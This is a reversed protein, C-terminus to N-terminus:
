NLKISIRKPRVFHTNLDRNLNSKYYFKTSSTKLTNSDSNRESQLEPRLLHVGSSNMYKANNQLEKQVVRKWGKNWRIRVLIRCHIYSVATMCRHERKYDWLNVLWICIMKLMIKYIQPNHHHNKNINNGYVLYDEILPMLNKQCNKKIKTVTLATIRLQCRMFIKSM